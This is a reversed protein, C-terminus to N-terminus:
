RTMQWVVDGALGALLGFRGFHKFCKGWKIHSPALMKLGTLLGIGAASGAAAGLAPEAVYNATWDGWKQVKKKSGENNIRTDFLYNLTEESYKENHGKKGLFSRNFGHEFASEGYQKIDEIMDAPVGGQWARVIQAYLERIYYNINEATNKQGDVGSFYESYKTLIGAKLLDFKQCIEDQDGSKIADHLQRIGQQVYGDEMAKLFFARDQASYNLVTAQQYKDHMDVAHDVKMKELEESAKQYQKMMETQMGLFSPNYMGMMGGMPSIGNMGMMSGYGGYGGFGNMTAMMSPDSYSGYGGLGYNGLALTM